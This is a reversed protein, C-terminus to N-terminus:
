ALAGSEADDCAVWVTVTIPRRHHTGHPLQRVIRGPAQGSVPAANPAELLIIETENALSMAQAMTLGVFGPVLWDHEYDLDRSVGGMCGSYTM